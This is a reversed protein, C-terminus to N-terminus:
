TNMAAWWLRLRLGIESTYGLQTSTINGNPDIVVLAPVGHLGYRGLIAAEPDALTPWAYGRASMTKAVAATDGSQIAVSLVPHDGAIGTVNGATSRCVPCWEAWFYLLVPQGAHRARWHALDVNSGDLLQGSFEPAPGSAANRAQWLQIAAFIACFILGEILRRRWKAGPPAKELKEPQTKLAHSGQLYQM